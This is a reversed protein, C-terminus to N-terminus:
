PELELETIWVDWRGWSDDQVFHEDDGFNEVLSRWNHITVEPKARGGEDEYIPWFDDLIERVLEVAREEAKEPTVHAHLRWPPQFPHEAQVIFIKPQNAM